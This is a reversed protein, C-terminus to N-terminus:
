RSHDALRHGTHVRCVRDPHGEVEVDDGVRLGQTDGILVYLEQGEGEERVTVWSVADDTIRGRRVLTGHPTTVHFAESVTLPRFYVDALVFYHTRDPTAWSPVRVVESM